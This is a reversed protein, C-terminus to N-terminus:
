GLIIRFELPFAATPVDNILHIIKTASDFAPIALVGNTQLVQLGEVIQGLLTLLHLHNATLSAM